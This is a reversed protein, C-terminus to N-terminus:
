LTTKYRCLFSVRPTITFIILIARKFEWVVLFISFYIHVVMYMCEHCVCVCM